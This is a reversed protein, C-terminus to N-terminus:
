PNNTRGWHESETCWRFSYSPVNTRGVSIAGAARLNALVPATEPAPHRLYEAVGDPTPLGEVDTNMKFTVPVGHLPGVADGRATAADAQQAKDLADDAVEGFANTVGNTAELRALSAAVVETSTVEKERISRATQEASWRWLEDSM